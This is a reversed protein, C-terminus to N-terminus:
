RDIQCSKRVKEIRRRIYALEIRASDLRGCLTQRNRRRGLVDPGEDGMFIIQVDQLDIIASVLPEILSPDAILLKDRNLKKLSAILPKVEAAAYSSKLEVSQNGMESTIATNM